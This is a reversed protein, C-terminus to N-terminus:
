TNSKTALSIRTQKKSLASSQAILRREFAGEPKILLDVLSGEGSPISEGSVSIPGLRLFGRCSLPKTPDCSLNTEPAPNAGNTAESLGGSQGVSSQEYSSSSGDGAFIFDERWRYNNKHQFSQNRPCSKFRR